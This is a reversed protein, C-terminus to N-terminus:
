TNILHHRSSHENWKIKMSFPVLFVITHLATSHRLLATWYFMINYVACCHSSCFKILTQDWLLCGMGRGWPRAIPHRKYPNPLLKVANYRCRVTNGYLSLMNYAKNHKTTTQHRDIKGVRKLNSCWCQPLWIVVWAGTVYGQFIRTFEYFISDSIIPVCM